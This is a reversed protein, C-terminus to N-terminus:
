KGEFPRTGCNPCLLVGTTQTDRLTADCEPCKREKRHEAEKKPTVNEDVGYKEM